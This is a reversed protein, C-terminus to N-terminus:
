TRGNDKCPEGAPTNYAYTCTNTSTPSDRRRWASTARPLPLAMDDLLSTSNLLNQVKIKCAPLQVEVEDHLGFSLPGYYTM